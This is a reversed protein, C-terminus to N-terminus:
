QGLLPLAERLNRIEAVPEGPLKERPAGGRNCWVARFGFSAAGAVDWANSSFFAIDGADLKLKEVAMQYVRPDPKFVGVDEVSFVVDISPAIKACNVASTLMVPAGNSLIGTKIGAAKLNALVEPVEDYTPISLYLEMLDARLGLDDIELAAMSYDLADGTVQWFDVHKGMLSRLWSYELQKRRWLESLAQAKDGTKAARASVPNILDFLTGYADFVCAGSGALPSDAMRTEKLIETM